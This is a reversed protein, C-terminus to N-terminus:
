QSSEDTEPVPMTETFVVQDDHHVEITVTGQARIPVTETQGPQMAGGGLQQTLTNGSEDRWRVEIDQDPRQGEAVVTVEFRRVSPEEPRYGADESVSVYPDSAPPPEEEGDEDEVTEDDDPEAVETEDQEPEDEPEDEEPGKSVILTIATGEEVITGPSPEQDYAIGAPESAHFFEEVQGLTLDDAELLSQARDIRTGTVNPVSVQRRGINVVIDIAAGEQVRAGAEPSQSLVRGAPQNPNQEQEIEGVVLGRNEIQDRAERQTLGLLNPVELVAPETNPYFAARMLMVVAIIVLLALLGIGVGMLAARATSDESEERQQVPRSPAQPPEDYDPPPASTAPRQRERPAAPQASRPLQMTADPTPQMVGTQDLDMGRELKEIDSRMEDASRYRRQPDRSMAKTIVFEAAPPIDENISRPSPPTERLHQAAIDAATEGGFPLKGTMAEYLTVGLSYIDSLPGAPAGQAQEPSIYHASGLVKGDETLGAEGAAAAIGFDSLKARGDDTFLVNAPKVDRHVFGQRHAHSLAECCATGVEVVKDLPLPAYRKIIEKLNLEPLYEMVIYYRGDDVGTDYIQVINPHNLKAAAHAERRFRAVVDQQDSLEPRLIKIAVRRDLTEDTGRYVLAVGGEGILHDVRYRDAILSGEM